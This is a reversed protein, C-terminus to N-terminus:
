RDRGRRRRGALGSWGGDLVRVDHHGYHRLLWWARAAAQGSWDDYVVVAARSVSGPGSCRTSSGTPTPSRTGVGDGPAAALDRDLDVYAAGPIHGAVYESLGAPGGTRYRVDLLTVDGLLPRLESASILPDSM